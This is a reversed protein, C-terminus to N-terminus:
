TKLVVPYEDAPVDGCRRLSDPADQGIGSVPWYPPRRNNIDVALIPMDPEAALPPHLCQKKEPEGECNRFEPVQIEPSPM